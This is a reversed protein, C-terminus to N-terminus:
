KDGANLIAATNYIIEEESLLRDYAYIDSISNKNNRLCLQNIGFNNLGTSINDNFEHVSSLQGNTYVSVSRGNVVLTIVVKTYNNSSIINNPLPDNGLAYIANDVSEYFYWRLPVEATFRDDGGSYTWDSGKLIACDANTGFFALAPNMSGEQAVSVDIDAITSPKVDLLFQVTYKDTYNTSAAKFLDYSTNAFTNTSETFNIKNSSLLSPKEYALNKKIIPNVSCYESKTVAHLDAACAGLELNSNSYLTNNGATPAYLAYIEGTSAMVCEGATALTFKNKTAETPSGSIFRNNTPSAMLYPRGYGTAFDMENVVRDCWNSRVYDMFISFKGFSRKDAESFKTYIVRALLLMACVMPTSYSTGSSVRDAWRTVGGIVKNGGSVVGSGYQTMFDITSLVARTSHPSCCSFWAVKNINTLAGNFIVRAPLEGEEMYMSNNTGYMIDYAGDKYEVYPLGIGQNGNPAAFINKDAFLQFIMREDKLMNNQSAVDYEEVPLGGNSSTFTDCIYDTVIKAMVEWDQLSSGTTWSTYMKDGLVLKALPAYGYRLGNAPAEYTKKYDKSFARYSYQKPTSFPIKSAAAGNGCLLSLIYDGHTRSGDLMQGIGAVVKSGDSDTYARLYSNSTYNPVVLNRDMYDIINFYQIGPFVTTFADVIGITYGFGKEATEWTDAVANQRFDWPCKAWEDEDYMIASGFAWNKELSIPELTGKRVTHHYNISHFRSHSKMEEQTLLRGNEYVSYCEITDRTSDDIVYGPEGEAVNTKTLEGTAEDVTYKVKTNTGQNVVGYLRGDEFKYTGDENYVWSRYPNSEHSYNGKNDPMYPYKYYNDNVKEILTELGYWPYFIISGFAKGKRSPLSSIADVLRNQYEEEDCLPNNFMHLFQLEKCESLDLSTLNNNNLILKNLTNAKLVTFSSIENGSLVLDTVGDISEIFYTCPQGSDNRLTAPIGSEITAEILTSEYQYVRLSNSGTFNITVEPKSTIFKIANKGSAVLEELDNLIDKLETAKYPLIYQSIM